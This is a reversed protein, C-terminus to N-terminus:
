QDADAGQAGTNGGEGSNRLHVAGETRSLALKGQMVQKWMKETDESLGHELTM